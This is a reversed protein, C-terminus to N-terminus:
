YDYQSLNLFRYSEPPVVIVKNPDVHAAKAAFEKSITGEADLFAAIGGAKQVGHLINLAFLTKCSSSNGFIEIMKGSPIGGGVFRGSCLYNLALNGTDIWTKVSDTKALISGGIESALFDYDTEENNEKTKKSKAM